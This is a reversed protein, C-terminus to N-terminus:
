KTRYQFTVNTEEDLVLPRVFRYSKGAKPVDIRVPLVGAVRRQLNFVNQSPANMQAQQAKRVQEELRRNEREADVLGSQVTVTAAVSAVQLTTGMRTPRSKSLELDQTVQNFGPQNVSVSVPGADMGDIVWRGEGDSQTGRSVGTQKNTVTVNAGPVIAGNPDVIIGGIQGPSIETLDGRNFAIVDSSDVVEPLEDILNQAAASFLDASLANGEFNRVELREPLFIEWTLLNIPIDIKALGMQYAGRKTFANGDSLYVFSVTYTGSPNFGARLLPVRTGDAANLPQVRQGEVEATVLTAGHPLQVKVFPQAHNRLRLTMETLSKGAVNALTTITAKEVLASLVQTDPFQKWELNLKPEDGPRRNYRFAAQLPFRALSKAIAGVERVDMRRLGGSEKPLLEMAGVGEVLLEGSEHQSGPFTLLPAEASTERNTREIAILFQHTRQAPERVHLILKDGQIETSELTSGTADTLEFGQPLRVSFEAPEGQIVSVDCLSASRLQSDGVAVVTKVTSLFRIERQTTPTLVERTTWWVKVPKGPELSADVVTHGNVSTRSTIIGPEVRVNAHNGPLDLTLVASSASPVPFTISARGAESTVASAVELSVDFSAPGRLIAFHSQSQQLLPLPNGVQKAELVTLGATLPVKAAGNALVEGSINVTGRVSSDEVRLRFVSQTLAYPLPATKLEKPKKAALESLRNYEVLSLTVTGASSSSPLPMISRVDRQQSFVGGALALILLIARKM